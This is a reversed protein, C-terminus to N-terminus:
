RAPMGAPRIRHDSVVLFLHNGDPGLTIAAMVRALLNTPSQDRLRLHIVGAQPQNQHFVIDGFDRDHTVLVRGERVATLLITPDPLSRQYDHQVSTVDHGVFSLHILLRADVNEDLLLRM